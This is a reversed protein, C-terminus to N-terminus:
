DHGGARKHKEIDVKAPSAKAFANALEVPDKGAKSWFTLEGTHQINHCSKCLSVTFYDSPKMGMGGDTGLRVHACEIPRGGGCASCAHGSVWKRHKPSRWRKQKGSPDDSCSLKPPLM